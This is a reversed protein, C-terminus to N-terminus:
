KADLSKMNETMLAATAQVSEELQKLTADMKATATQLESAQKEAASLRQSFTATQSHQSALAQLRQAMAPLQHTLGQLQTMQDHLAAISKSSEANADRSSILKNKAKSAAELDQRIVKAKKMAAELDKESLKSAARELATLRQVLSHSEHIGPGTGVVQELKRVRVEWPVATAAEVTPPSADTTTPQALSAMSSAVQKTLREQLLASSAASSTSPESLRTNLGRIVDLLSAESPGAHETVDKELEEVERQLRALRQWPTEPVGVPKAVAVKIPYLKGAFVEFADEPAVGSTDLVAKEDQTESVNVPPPSIVIPPEQGDSSFIEEKAAEEATPETPSAASM